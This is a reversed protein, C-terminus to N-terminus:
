ELEIRGPDLLYSIGLLIASVLVFMLISLVANLVIRYWAADKPSFVRASWLFVAAFFWPPILEIDLLLYLIDCLLTFLIAWLAFLYIAATFHEPFSHKQRYYVVATSLALLPIMLLFLVLQPSLFAKLSDSVGSVNVEMGLINQNVLALHLGFVFLMYVVLQSPSLYYGRFGSWYNEVIYRPNILLQRFTGLLSREPALLGSLWGGIVDWTNVRRGLYRQGCNHCYTGQQKTQCITCTTSASM